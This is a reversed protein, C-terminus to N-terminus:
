FGIILENEHTDFLIIKMLNDFIFFEFYQQEKLIQTVLDRKCEFIPWPFFDDDTIVLYIRDEFKQLLESFLIEWDSNENNNYTYIEKVSIDDWLYRKSLDFSFKKSLKEILIKAHEEPISHSDINKENILTIIDDILLKDM